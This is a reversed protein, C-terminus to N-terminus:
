RAPPTNTSATDRLRQAADRAAAEDREREKAVNAVVLVTVGVAFAIVGPFGGFIGIPSLLVVGLIESAKMLTSGSVETGHM